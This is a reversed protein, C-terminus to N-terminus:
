DRFPNVHKSFPVRIANSKRRKNINQHLNTQLVKTKNKKQKTSKLVIAKLNLLLGVM